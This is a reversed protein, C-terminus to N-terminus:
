ADDMEEYSVIIELDSAASALAQIKDGELYIPADKGLVILTDGASVNAVKCIHFATTNDANYFLVNCTAANTGDINSVIISNIKLLKEPHVLLYIDASGTGLAVATTKGNISTVNVLNQHRWLIEKRGLYSQWQM